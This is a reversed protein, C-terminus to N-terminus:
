YLCSDGQMDNQEKREVKWHIFFAAISGDLSIADLLCMSASLSLVFNIDKKKVTRYVFLLGYTTTQTSTVLPNMSVM